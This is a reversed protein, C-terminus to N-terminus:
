WKRSEANDKQFSDALFIKKTAKKYLYNFYLLVRLIYFIASKALAELKGKFTKAVGINYGAIKLEYKMPLFILFPAVLWYIKIEKMGYSYGYHRLRSALIFEILFNEYGFMKDRGKHKKINKNFGDLYKGSIADGWWKKGQYSSELMSEQFTMGYMACFEELVQRSYLHLDELKLTKFRRTYELLPESENFIIKLRDYFVRPHYTTSAFRRWHEASSILGNRPERISCVMDFEPFDAKLDKLGSLQHIHYFLIKTRKIEIGSILAYALNVALFFNRSNVEKDSLIARMHRKFADVDLEFHENKNEGLQHWRERKNYYSKFKALHVAATHNHWIFETILDDLNDKCKAENWWAHFFWFGTLQVIEPHGDILSHFFDTGVRGAGGLLAVIRLRAVYDFLDNYDIANEQMVTKQSM